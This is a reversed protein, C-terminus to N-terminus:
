GKGVFVRANARGNQGKGHEKTEDRKMKSEKEKALESAETERM